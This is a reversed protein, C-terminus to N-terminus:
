APVTLGTGEATRELAQQTYKELLQRRFTSSAQSDDIIQSEDIGVAAQAAAAAITETDLRKGELSDEVRGLRIGHNTVGNAAVRATSVAGDDVSMRAAVGLLTYRASPSQTKSYAGSADGSM